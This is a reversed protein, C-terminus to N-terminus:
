FALRKHPWGWPIMPDKETEAYIEYEGTIM